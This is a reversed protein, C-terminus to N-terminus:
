TPIVPPCYFKGFTELTETNFQKRVGCQLCSRYAARGYSFPRSLNEHGCGFIKGLLGVQEGFVRNDVVTASRVYKSTLTRLRNPILTTAMVMKGQEYYRGPEREKLTAKWIEAKFRLCRFSKVINELAILIGCLFLIYALMFRANQAM